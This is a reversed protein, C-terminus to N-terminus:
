PDSRSHERRCRLPSHRHCDPRTILCRLEVEFLREVLRAKAKLGVAGGRVILYALRLEQEPTLLGTRTLRNVYSQLDDSRPETAVVAEEGNWEEVSGPPVTAAPEVQVALFSM